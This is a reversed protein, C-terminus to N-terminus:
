LYQRNITEDGDIVERAVATDKRSLADLARRLRNGVLEGMYLIDARIDELRDRYQERTM